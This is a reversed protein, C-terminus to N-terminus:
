HLSYIYGMSNIEQCIKQFDEDAFPYIWKYDKNVTPLEGYCCIVIIGLSNEQTFDAPFTEASASVKLIRMQDFQFINFNDKMHTMSANESILVFINGRYTLLAGKEPCSILFHTLM